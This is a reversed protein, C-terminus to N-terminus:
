GKVKFKSYRKEGFWLCNVSKITITGFAVPYPKGADATPDDINTIEPSTIKPKPMILYAVVSLAVSLLFSLFFAM